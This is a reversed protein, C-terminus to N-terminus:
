SENRFKKRRERPMCDILLDTLGLSEVVSIYFSYTYREGDESMRGIYVIMIAINWQLRM